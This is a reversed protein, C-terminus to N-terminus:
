LPKIRINRFAVPDGHGMFGVYGESRRMGPHEHEDLPKEIKSLDADNIKTGNLFVQVRPGEVVVEEFNWEGVPRLFGSHAPAVGYVSGHVQWPKIKNKYREHGDDLIQIEMGVFAPNGELPSRIALGNNGGPPLKFEFRVAFDRYPDKMFLDGGGKKFALVGDKVEYTDTAGIWGALDKGNFASTFGEDDRSQLLKNAEEAGIERVFINRFRMESGHTQLQIPGSASLPLKRDWFNELPAHDVTLRDNFWVTVREGVMIIHFTNWDGVPKDAKVLPWKGEGSNNWLAGSGKEIGNAKEGVNSPDWIQVQPTARLYIGSDGNPQMMRWDVLFEIDRYDKNTTLFVGRGDNIIEGGETRWHKAMDENAAILKDAREADAWKAMEYPNTHGLGRWGTLDKGNFLATFGKPPVNPAEPRPTQHEAAGTTALCAAM